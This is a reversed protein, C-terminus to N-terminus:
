KSNLKQKIETDLDKKYKAMQNFSAQLLLAQADDLDAKGARSIMSLLKSTKRMFQQQLADPLVDAQLMQTLSAKWINFDIPADVSNYWNNFDDYAATNGRNKLGVVVNNWGAAQCLLKLASIEDDTADVRSDFLDKVQQRFDTLSDERLAPLGQQLLRVRDGFLMGGTLQLNQLYKTFSNLLDQLEQARGKAQNFIAIQLQKIVTQLQVTTANIKVAFLQNAKQVFSDQLVDNLLDSGSLMSSLDTLREAFSPLRSV